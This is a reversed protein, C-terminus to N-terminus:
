NGRQQAVLVPVSAGPCGQGKAGTLSQLVQIMATARNRVTASSQDTADNFSALDIPTVVSPDPFFGQGLAQALAGLFREDNPAPPCDCPIPANNAGACSGAQVSDRGQGATIGFDTPIVALNVQGDGGGGGGNGGGNNGGGNNGGGNNNGNGTGNNGGGLVPQSVDAPPATVPDVGPASPSGDEIPFPPQQGAGPRGGRRPAASVATAALAALLITKLSPM